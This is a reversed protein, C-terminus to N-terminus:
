SLPRNTYTSGHREAILPVVHHMILWGGRKVNNERFEYFLTLNTCKLKQGQAGVCM